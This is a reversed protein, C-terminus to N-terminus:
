PLGSGISPERLGSGISSGFVGSYDFSPGAAGGTLSQDHPGLGDVHHLDVADDKIEYSAAVLEGRVEEAEGEIVELRAKVLSEPSMYRRVVQWEDDQEALAMGVLRIVADRNPFIGVVDTRRRIEKTLTGLLPPFEPHVKPTSIGTVYLAVAMRMPLQYADLWIPVIAVDLMSMVDNTPM